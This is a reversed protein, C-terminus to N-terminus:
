YQLYSTKSYYGGGVLEGIIDGCNTIFLSVMLVSLFMCVKISDRDKEVSEKNLDRSTTARAIKLNIM